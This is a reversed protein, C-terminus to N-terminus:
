SPRASFHRQLQQLTAANGRDFFTRMRQSEDDRTFGLSVVRVRTRGSGAPEFYIVTWMQRIANPFPFMDPARSVRISLMRMPEFSLVINEITQPDGLAGQASYNTRMLGGVRLDIEAHPALWSRLGESTAWVAWVADVPAEVIAESVIPSLDQAQVPGCLIAVLALSLTGRKM